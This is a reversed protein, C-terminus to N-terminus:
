ISSKTSVSCQLCCLRGYRRNITKVNRINKNNHKCNSCPVPCRDGTIPTIVDDSVHCRWGHRWMEGVRNETIIWQVIRLVSRPLTGWLMERLQLRQLYPKRKTTFINCARLCVKGFRPSPGVAPGWLLGGKIWSHLRPASCAGGHPGPCIVPMLSMKIWKSSSIQMQQWHKNTIKICCKWTGVSPPVWWGEGRAVPRSQINNDSNIVNKDWRTRPRSFHGFSGNRTEAKLVYM